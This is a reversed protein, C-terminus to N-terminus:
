DFIEIVGEILCTIKSIADKSNKINIFTKRVINVTKRLNVNNFILKIESWLSTFSFDEDKSNVNSSKKSPSSSSQKAAEEGRTKNQREREANTAPSSSKKAYTSYESPEREIKRQKSKKSSEIHAYM